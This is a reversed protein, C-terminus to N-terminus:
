CRHLETSRHKSGSAEPVGPGSSGRRREDRSQKKEEEEGQKAAIDGTEKWTQEYSYCVCSFLILSSTTYAEVSFVTLQTPKVLHTILHEFM